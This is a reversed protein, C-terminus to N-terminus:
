LDPLNEITGRLEEIRKEWLNRGGSNAWNSSISGEHERDIRAMYLEDAIVKLLLETRRM